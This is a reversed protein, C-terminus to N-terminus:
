KKDKELRKKAKICIKNAALMQKESLTKKQKVQKQLSEIFYYANSKYSGTWTTKGVLEKVKNLKTLARNAFEEKEKKYDEDFHCKIIKHIADYMKDTIKRGSILASYMDATFKNGNNSEVIKGLEDIEKAFLKKNYEIWKGKSQVV